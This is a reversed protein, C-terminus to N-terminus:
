ALNMMWRQPIIKLNNGKTKILYKYPYLMSHNKRDGLNFDNFKLMAIKDPQERLIRIGKPLYVTVM